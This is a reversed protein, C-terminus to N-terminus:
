LQKGSEVRRLNRLNCLNYIRSFRRRIIGQLRGSAEREEVGQTILTIQPYSTKM